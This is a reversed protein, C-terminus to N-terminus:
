LISLRESDLSWDDKAEVQDRRDCSLVMSILREVVERFLMLFCNMLYALVLRRLETYTNSMVPRYICGFFLPHPLDCEKVLITYPTTCDESEIRLNNGKANMFIRDLRPSLIRCLRNCKVGRSQPSKDLAGRTDSISKSNCGMTDKLSRDNLM